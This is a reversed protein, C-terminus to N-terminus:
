SVPDLLKKVKESNQFLDEIPKVRRISFVDGRIEKSRSKDVNRSYTGLDSQPHLDKTGGVLYKIWGLFWVTVVSDIGGSFYLQMCQSKMTQNSKSTFFLLHMSSIGNSMCSFIQGHTNTKFEQVFMKKRSHQTKTQYGNLGVKRKQAQATTSSRVVFTNRVIRYFIATEFVLHRKCIPAM